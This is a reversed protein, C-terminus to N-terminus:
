AQSGYSLFHIYGLGIYLAWGKVTFLASTNMREAWWSTGMHVLQHTKIGYRPILSCSKGLLNIPHPLRVLFRRLDLVDYVSSRSHQTFVNTNYINSYEQISVCVELYSCHRRDTSVHLWVRVNLHFCPALSFVSWYHDPKIRILSSHPSEECEFWM